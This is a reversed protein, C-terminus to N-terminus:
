RFASGAEGVAGRNRRDGGGFFRGGGAGRTHAPRADALSSTHEAANQFVSGTDSSYRCARRGPTRPARFLRDRDPLTGHVLRGTWEGQRLSYGGTTARGAM